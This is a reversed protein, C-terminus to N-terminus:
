LISESIYVGPEQGEFGERDLGILPSENFFCDKESCFVATMKIGKIEKDEIEVESQCKPCKLKIM